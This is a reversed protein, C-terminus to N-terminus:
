DEKAPEAPAEERDVVTIVGKKWLVRSTIIAIPIMILIIFGVMGLLISGKGIIRAGISVLTTLILVPIVGKLGGKVVRKGSSTSGFLGLSMSGFLSPLLYAAMTRVAPKEFVPSIWFILVAAVTLVLVTMISSAAVGISTVVDGEATNPEKGTLKLANIACPLKLNMINGTIFGLYASSGMIPTYGLAESLGIPIYIFLIGLTAVNIIKNLPPMANFKTLVIFPIAIIYLLVIITGARGWRHAWTQFPDLTVTTKNKKSM